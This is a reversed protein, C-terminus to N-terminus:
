GRVSISRRQRRASSSDPSPSRALSRTARAQRPLNALASRGQARPARSKPAAAARLRLAAFVGRRWRCRQASHSGPPAPGAPPPCGGSIRGGRRPAAWDQQEGPSSLATEAPEQAALRTPPLSLLRCGRPGVLIRRSSGPRDRVHRVGSRVGFLLSPTVSAGPAGIPLAARDTALSAEAKHGSSSSGMSEVEPDEILFPLVRHWRTRLHCIRRNASAVGLLGALFARWALHKPSSFHCSGEGDNGGNGQERDPGAVLGGGVHAM